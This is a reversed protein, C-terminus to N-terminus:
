GIVNHFRRINKTTAAIMPIRGFGKLAIADTKRMNHTRATSPIRANAPNDLISTM